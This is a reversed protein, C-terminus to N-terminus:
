LDELGEYGLVALAKVEDQGDLLRVRVRGNKAVQVTRCTGMAQVSIDNTSGCWGRLCIERSMNKHFPHPSIPYTVGSDASYEAIFGVDGLTSMSYDPGTWYSTKM